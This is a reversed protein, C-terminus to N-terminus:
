QKSPWADRSTSTAGTSAAGPPGRRGVRAVDGLGFLQIWEPRTTESSPCLSVAAPGAGSAWWSGHREQQALAEEQHHIHGDHQADEQLGHHEPLRLVADPRPAGAEIRQAEHPEEEPGHEPREGDRRRSGPIRSEEVNQVPCGVGDLEGGEQQQREEERLDRVALGPAAAPLVHLRQVHGEADTGDGEDQDPGDHRGHPVPPQGHEAVRRLAHGGSCIRVVQVRVRLLPLGGGGGHKAHGDVSPPRAVRVQLVVDRPRVRAVRGGVATEVVAGVAVVM